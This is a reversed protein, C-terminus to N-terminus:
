RSVGITKAIQTLSTGSIYYEKIKEINKMIFGFGTPFECTAKGGAKL